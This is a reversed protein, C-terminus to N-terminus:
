SHLWRELYLDLFPEFSGGHAVFTKWMAEFKALVVAATDEMNLTRDSNTPLLQAISTTPLSNTVNLGAGIVVEVGRTGFSTNVLIGGVKKRGEGEVVYLDNPWKIRVAEGYRGLVREDRVAETVALSYIYQVFVLKAPPVHSFPVRLLLSIPLSGRPSLWANGGRGRGSLQIAALSLLPTPLAHLLRPNKDLMTQTSSVVEGYLLAEGIGWSDGEGDELGERKRASQLSAFYRDVDFLPTHDTTPRQASSCVVVHKPQWEEEKMQQTPELSKVRAQQLATVGASFSHFHFTDNTDPLVSPEMADTSLNLELASLIHPVIDPRSPPAVLFQPLPCSPPKDEPLRLGLSRLTDRLLVQRHKEGERIEDLSLSASGTLPYELSPSWIALKLGDTAHCIIGAISGNAYRSLVKIHSAKEIGSFESTGDQHVKVVSGGDEAPELEAISTESGNRFTPYVTTGTTKDEFRLGGGITSVRGAVQAGSSLCLYAGGDNVFKNVANIVKPSSPASLSSPFVLLACAATWPHNALSQSTVAQVTYNPLLLTRLSTITHSASAVESGSYVLVNM